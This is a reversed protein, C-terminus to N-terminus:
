VALNGTLPIWFKKLTDLFQFTDLSKKAFKSITDLLHILNLRVVWFYNGLSITLQVRKTRFLPFPM